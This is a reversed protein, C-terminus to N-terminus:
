DRHEVDRQGGHASDNGKVLTITSREPIKQRIDKRTIQDRASGTPLIKAKYYDLLEDLRERRSRQQQEGRRFAGDKGISQHDKQESWSGLPRHRHTQEHHKDRRGYQSLIEQPKIRMIQEMAETDQPINVLDMM